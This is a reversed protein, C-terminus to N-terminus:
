RQKEVKVEGCDQVEDSEADCSWVFVVHGVKEGGGGSVFPLLISNLIQQQNRGM